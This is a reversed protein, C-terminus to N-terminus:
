FFPRTPSSPFKRSLFITSNAIFSVLMKAFSTQISAKMWLCLSFPADVDLEEKPRLVAGGTEGFPFVLEQTHDEALFPFPPSGGKFLYCYVLLKMATLSLSLTRM